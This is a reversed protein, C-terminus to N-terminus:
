DRGNLRLLYNYWQEYMNTVHPDYIGLTLKTLHLYLVTIISVEFSM